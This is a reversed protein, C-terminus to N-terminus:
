LDRREKISLLFYFTAGKGYVSEVGIKGKHAEIIHKSIALGLGTTGTTRENGTVLQSFVKFLKQFDEKKIGPGQDEVSVRVTNGLHETKLTIRGKEMVKLANNMFNTLVQLIRDRDFLLSPLEAELDESLELGKNRAMLTFNEKVENVLRNIDNETMRITMKKIELKQFDLVDNILRTLRDINRKAATLFERQEPNIPGATGDHVIGVSEQIVTLPTRLEHSVMSTFESKIKMVEQMKEMQKRQIAYRVVRMLLAGDLKDKFLYDQAGCAISELALGEELYTGTMVVVPIMPAQEVLRKVTELGDSDPLHLDTIVVDFKDEQLQEFASSLREVHKILVPTTRQGKKIERMVAEADLRDDELLLIKIAADSM